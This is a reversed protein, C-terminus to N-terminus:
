KTNDDCFTKNNMLEIFRNYNLRFEKQFELREPVKKEIYCQTSRDFGTQKQIFLKKERLIKHRYYLIAHRASVVEHGRNKEYLQDREIGFAMCVAIEHPLITGPIAYANM